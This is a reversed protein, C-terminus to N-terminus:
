RDMKDAWIFTSCRAEPNGPAGEPRPCVWFDRGRNASARKVTRRVCPEQHGSCKPTKQPRRFLQNWQLAAASQTCTAKQENRDESREGVGAKSCGDQGVHMPTLSKTRVVAEEGVVGAPQLFQWLRSQRKQCQSWFCTCLTPPPTGTSLQCTTVPLRAWVPCHDSGPVDVLLDCVSSFRESPPFRRALGTDCLIYDIRTGYNTQRAGTRTNWCSFANQRNPQALRGSAILSVVSKQLLEFFQFRYAARDLREPDVRPCYLCVVTLFLRSSPAPPLGFQLALVRGESDFGEASNSDGGGLTLLDEFSEVASTPQIPNKCFICVGSIPSSSLFLCRDSHSCVPRSTRNAKTEQLCIIDAELSDLQRKIPKSLTRIGNINWTCVRLMSDCSVESLPM